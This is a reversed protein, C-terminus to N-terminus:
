QVPAPTPTASPAAPTPSEPKKIAAREIHHASIWKAMMVPDDRYKNRVVADLRRRAKLGRDLVEEVAAQSAVHDGIGSAQQEIAAELAAVKENLNAILGPLEQAEFQSAFPALDTAFARGRALWAQDTDSAPLEFNGSVGPVEDLVGATRSVVTLLERLDERSEARTITGHRQRGVGSVQAAAHGELETIIGDLATFTQKALGNAAFESAHDRGFDRIRIFTHHIRNTKDNM